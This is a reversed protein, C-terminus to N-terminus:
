GLNRQEIAGDVYDVDPRYTTNLYEEISVLNSLKSLNATAM